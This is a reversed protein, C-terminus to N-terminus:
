LHCVLIECTWSRFIIKSAVCAVILSWAAFYSAGTSRLYVMPSLLIGRGIVIIRFFCCFLLSYAHRFVFRCNVGIIEGATAQILRRWFQNSRLSCGICHSRTIITYHIIDLRIRTRGWVLSIRGSYRSSFTGFINTKSSWFSKALTVILRTNSVILYSFFLSHKVIFSADTSALPLWYNLWIIWWTVKLYDLQRKDLLIM